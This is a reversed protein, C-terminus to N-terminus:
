LNNERIIDNLTLINLILPEKERTTVTKGEQEKRKKNSNRALTRKTELTKLALKIEIIDDLTVKLYFETNDM